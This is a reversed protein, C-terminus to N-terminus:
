GFYKAALPELAQYGREFDWDTEFLDRVSESLSPKYPSDCAMLYGLSGLGGHYEVALWYLVQFGTFGPSESDKLVRKFARYSEVDDATLTALLPKLYKLFEKM